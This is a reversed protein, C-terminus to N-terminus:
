SRAKGPRSLWWTLVGASVAVLALLLCWGATLAPVLGAPLPGEASIPRGAYPDELGPLGSLAAAFLMVVAGPLVLRAPSLGLDRMRLVAPYALVGCTVLAMLAANGVALTPTAILIAVCLGASFALSWFM